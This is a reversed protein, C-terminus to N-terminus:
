ENVECINQPLRKNSKVWERFSELHNPSDVEVQEDLCDEFDDNEDDMM